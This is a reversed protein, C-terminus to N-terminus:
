LDEKIIYIITTIILATSVTSLDTYIHPSHHRNATSEIHKTIHTLQAKKAPKICWKPHVDLKVWMDNFYRVVKGMTYGCTTFVNHVPAVDSLTNPM